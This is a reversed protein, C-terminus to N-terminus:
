IKVSCPTNIAAVLLRQEQSEQYFVFPKHINVPQSFGPSISYLLSLTLNALKDVICPTAVPEDDARPEDALIRIRSSNLKTGFLMHRSNQFETYRNDWWRFIWFHYNYWCRVSNAVKDYDKPFIVFHHVLYQLHLSSLFVFLSTHHELYLHLMSSVVSQLMLDLRNQGLTQYSMRIM